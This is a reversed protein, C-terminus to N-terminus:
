NLDLRAGTRFAEKVQDKFLIYTQNTWNSKLQFLAPNAKDEVIKGSFVFGNNLLIQDAGAIDPPISGNAWKVGRVENRPIARSEGNRVAVYFSPNEGVIRVRLEEGSNMTLVDSPAQTCTTCVNNVPTFPTFGVLFVSASLIAAISLTRKMM